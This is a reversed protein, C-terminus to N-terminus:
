REMVLDITSKQRLCVKEILEILFWTSSLYYGYWVMSSRDDRFMSWIGASIINWPIAMVRHSLTRVAFTATSTRWLTYEYLIVCLFPLSIVCSKVADKRPERGQGTHLKMNAIIMALQFEVHCRGRQFGTPQGKRSVSGLNTM